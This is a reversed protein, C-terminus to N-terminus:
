NNQAGAQIWSRIQGIKCDSLKAAGKPMQEFGPSHTVVGLLLGNQAVNKVGQYTTLNTGAAPATGSHCGTCHTQLIPVIAAAYTFKTPDCSTGCNTTNKAGENIWRGILSKQEISLPPNPPPPMRESNTKTLMKYVKSDSADFPRIDKKIINAYSDFVYGHERTLADHCGSKACNSQFIPLVDAEFCVKNSGGGTTVDPGSDPVPDPFSHKCSTYILVTASIM